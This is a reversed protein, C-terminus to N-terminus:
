VEDNTLIIKQILFSFGLLSLVILIVYSSDMGANQQSAEVFKNGNVKLNLTHDNDNNLIGCANELCQEDYKFFNNIHMKKHYKFLLRYEEITKIKYHKIVNHQIIFEVANISIDNPQHEYLKEFSVEDMSIEIEDISYVADVFQKPTRIGKRTEFWWRGGHEDEGDKSPRLSISGDKLISCYLEDEWSSVMNFQQGSTALLFKIAM